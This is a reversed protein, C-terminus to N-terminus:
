RIVDGANIKAWQEKIDAASIDKRIQIVELRAIYKSDRYVGLSEGIKVGSNEGIDVIVFNNEGNVSVVKANYGTKTSQVAPVNGSSSSSSSSSSNVHIAPLEIQNSTPLKKKSADKITADLSDKIDWIEDIKGQVITETKGLEKSISNKEETLRVISKELASKSDALLKLDARLQDNDQNLKEIRDGVFKKDNKTRALELSLNNVMETKYKIDGELQERAHKLSDIDIQMNTNKQKLDVVEMASKALDSKMADIEVQLSAKERLVSAWYQDNGGSSNQDSVQESSSAVPAAASFNNKSSAKALEKNLGEIQAVLKDHEDRISDARAKLKDRDETVDAVQSLLEGVQKEATKARRELDARADDSSKLKDKLQKAEVLYTKEKDAFKQVQGELQAKDKEVKQNQMFYYGAASLCAFLLVFLVIISKKASNSM